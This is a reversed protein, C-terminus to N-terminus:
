RRRSCCDGGCVQRKVAFLNNPDEKLISEYDAMALEFEDKAEWMMAVLRRVRISDPFRAASRMPHSCLTLLVPLFPIAEGAFLRHPAAPHPWRCGLSAACLITCYEGALRLEDSLGDPDDSKKRRRGYQLLAVYVQEYMAWVGDGLRSAHSKLLYQGYKLVLDPRVHKGERVAMVLDRSLDFGCRSPEHGYAACAREAEDLSPTVSM